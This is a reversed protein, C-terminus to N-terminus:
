LDHPVMPTWCLDVAYDYVTQRFALQSLMKPNRRADKIDALFKVKSYRVM